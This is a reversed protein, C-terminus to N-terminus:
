LDFKDLKKERKDIEYRYKELEDKLKIYMEDLRERSQKLRTITTNYADNVLEDPGMKNRMNNIEKENKDLEKEVKELVKRTVTYNKSYMELEKQLQKILDADDNRSKELEDQKRKKEKERELREKERENREKEDHEHWWKIQNENKRDEAKLQDLRHKVAIGAAVGIGVGIGIKKNRSKKYEEYKKKEAETLKEKKKIKEKIRKIEEKNTNSAELLLLMKDESLKGENYKEFIIDDIINFM